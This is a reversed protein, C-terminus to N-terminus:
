ILSNRDDYIHEHLEFVDSMLNIKIILKILNFNTAFILIVSTRNPVEQGFYHM